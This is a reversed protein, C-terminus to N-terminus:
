WRGSISEKDGDGERRSRRRPRPFMEQEVENKGYNSTFSTAEPQVQRPQLIDREVNVGDEEFGTAIVTVIIEDTKELEENIVTGFIM